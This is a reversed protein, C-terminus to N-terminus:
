ESYRSNEDYDKLEETWTDLTMAWFVEAEVPRHTVQADLALVSWDHQRWWDSDFRFCRADWERLIAVLVLLGYTTGRWTLLADDFRRTVKVGV